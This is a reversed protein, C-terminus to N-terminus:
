YDLNRYPMYRITKGRIGAGTRLSLAIFVPKMYRKQQRGIIFKNIDPM